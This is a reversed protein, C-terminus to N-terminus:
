DYSLLVLEEADPKIDKQQFASNLDTIHQINQMVENLEKNLRNSRATLNTSRMTSNM